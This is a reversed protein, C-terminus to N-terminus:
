RSAHEFKYDDYFDSQAYYDFRSSLQPRWTIILEAVCADRTAEDAFVLWPNYSAGINRDHLSNQQEEDGINESHLYWPTGGVETFGRLTFQKIWATTYYTRGIVLDKQETIARARYKQFISENYQM